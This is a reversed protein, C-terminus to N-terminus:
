EHLAQHKKKKLSDRILGPNTREVHMLLASHPLLVSKFTTFSGPPHNEKALHSIGINKKKPQLNLSPSNPLKAWLSWNEL